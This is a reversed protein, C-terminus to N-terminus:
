KKVKALLETAAKGWPGDKPADKIVRDLLKVAEATYKQDGLIRAHEVMSAFKLGPVDYGYYV